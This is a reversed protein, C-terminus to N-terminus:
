KNLENAQKRLQNAYDLLECADRMPLRYKDSATAKVADTIGKAQQDRDRHAVLESEETNDIELLREIAQGMDMHVLEACSEVNVALRINQSKLNEVEAELLGILSQAEDNAQQLGDIRKEQDSIQELANHFQVCYLASEEELKANAQQLKLLEGLSERLAKNRDKANNPYTIETSYGGSCDDTASALGSPLTYKSM